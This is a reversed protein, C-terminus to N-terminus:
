SIKESIAIFHPILFLSDSFNILFSNKPLENIDSNESFIIEENTETLEAIAVGHSIKLITAFSDALNQEIGQKVKIRSVIISINHKQNKDLTPHPL